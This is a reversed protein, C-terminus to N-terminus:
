PSRAASASLHREPELLAAGEGHEPGVAGALRREQPHQRRQEYRVLSLHAHQSVDQRAVRVRDARPDPQEGVFREEVPIEGAALVQAEIGAEVADRFRLARIAWRSSLVPM